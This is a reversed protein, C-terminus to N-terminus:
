NKAQQSCTGRIFVANNRSSARITFDAPLGPNPIVFTARVSGTTGALFPPITLMANSTTLVTLGQLGVGSDVTDVTVSGLGPTIAQFGSLSGPFVETISLTPTCVGPAPPPTPSPTPGPTPSPSPTPTPNPVPFSCKARILVANSRASARLTFDVPQGPNPLAFVINVPDFTGFPFAPISVVANMSSVVSVNQLGIGSNAPDITVRNETGVISSFAAASGPFVETVTITPTCIAPDIVTHSTTGSSGLFNPDGLYTVTLLRQGAVTSTIVCSGALASASCFGGAGDAVNVSGSLNGGGPAVVVVNWTVAYSQGILTPDPTDSTITLLTSAKIVQHIETDSSVSFNGDGSYAASITRSGASALVITCSGTPAPGTCSEPGGSVSVAVLGSPTGAGPANPNVSYSVVVEQGVVSPEPADSNITLSTSAKTVEQPDDILTGVSNNFGSSNAVFSATISHSGVPLQSTTLSAVGSALSIPPGFAAGNALFQVSGTPTGGAPAAAVVTATFTVGQGFVSPDSSSTVSTATDAPLIADTDTASNNNPNPDEISSSVVSTNELEGPVAVPSVTANVTFTVSAAPPLSVSANIDGNGSEPCVGGNNSVCTWFAASIATPFTDSVTATAVPSPGSNSATITYILAGGPGVTTVGDTKTISLNAIPRVINTDTSSNNEPVSDTTGQPPFVNAINAVTGSTATVNASVIFTVMGGDPLTPIVIGDGQMLSVTTNEPAPCVAGGQASCTVGTVSLGAVVPDTFVSLDAPSPGGNAIAISYFTTGGANVTENGDTKLVSLNANAGVVSITADPNVPPPELNGVNDRAVSYFRYSRGEVGTFDSTTDATSKFLTYPGNNESVWVDFNALGSGGEPDTGSWNVTFTTAESTPPLTAVQSSPADTDITNLTTNTVIPEETDFVITANNTIETGTVVNAKPKVTFIVYGQGLNGEGNPPLLGLNPSLPQEGTEPDIATMTWTVRSTAINVGASIDVLLNGLDEGLQARTQYFARNPPVEYRYDGFGIEKLRVTRPDLSLPLDDTIRIRQAYGTATPMNEFNIRYSYSNKSSVFNEAGFGAPGVKDNPDSPFRIPPAKFDKYTPPPPPPPLCDQGFQYIDYLQKARQVGELIGVVIGAAKGPTFDLACEPGYELTAKVAGIAMSGISVWLAGEDVNRDVAQAVIEGVLSLQPVFLEGALKACNSFPLAEMAVDVAIGLAANICSATVANPVSLGRSASIDTAMMPPLVEARVLLRVVEAPARVDLDIRVSEGRRLAPILLPISRGQDTQISIPVQEVSMGSPLDSEPIVTLEFDRSLRFDSGNPINIFLPTLLADNAGQNTVTISFQSFTNPRVAEPASVRVVVDHGGGEMVRFGNELRVAEFGPNTLVVDYLGDEQGRLDFIAVLRAGDSRTQLPFIEAIGERSLKATTTVGFRAGDITLTAFGRNGAQEPTVRRIGFPLLESKIQVSQSDGPPSAPVFDGRVLAYYTGSVTNPVVNEQDPENPRSFLFDYQNRSAIQGFRTFLENSSGFEGDLTLLLTENTPTNVKYFREQGTRLTAALPIGLQLETVDVNTASSAVLRNNSENIERVQNRSDTRVIVYYAGINMAPLTPSISGEYTAGPALDSQRVYQGVFVDNIDWTADPSLYVSDTWLGFAANAGTNRGVWDITVPDGPVATPLPTISEVVLDAPATLSLSVIQSPSINNSENSEPVSNDRDTRVFVNYEGTLGQPVLFEGAFQYSEGAGLAGSHAVTGLVPDRSDLIQDRSLFLTEKWRSAVTQYSGANTVTFSVNLNRGSFGTPPVAVQSVQLDAEPGAVVIPILDLNNGEFIGEDVNLGSDSIVILYYAGPATNPLSVAAEANYTSGVTLPGNRLVRGLERDGDSYVQDTSLYVADLWAVSAVPSNGSNIGTWSVNFTEFPRVSSGEVNMSTIRLDPRNSLEPNPAISIGGSNASQNNEEGECEDLSNSLDTRVHVYWNGTLTMPLAVNVSRSYSGNSPLPSGQFSGSHIASILDPTLSPSLFVRDVWAGSASGPGANLVSWSVGINEGGTANSPHTVGMVQLDPPVNTLQIPKPSSENNAEGDVKPDFEYINNGADAVAILYYEGSICRPLRVTGTVSYEGGAELVASHTETFLINDQEPDLNVDSSLYLADFGSPPADFPGQNRVTFSVTIESGASAVTPATLPQLIILDPPTATITVPSGPEEGDFGSNNNESNFEYVKNASDTVVIVYWDGSINTPLTVSYNNVSYGDGPALIGNRERSAILRDNGGLTTDSSLYVTDTWKAQQPPVIGLGNNEVRWSILIPQGAFGEDQAQVSTVRLDPLPPIQISIAKARTNNQENEESVGTSSDAKAILFRNGFVGRPLTVNAVAVYSEGSDLYTINRVSRMPTDAADLTSDTSLYISDLWEGSNTAGPGSNTVTWQVQIEQDFFATDPALLSPVALEPRLTRRVRIPRFASRNNANGDQGEVLDDGDDAMVYLFYDGTQSIASVPISIDQIRQISQQSGLSQPFDFCGLQVDTGINQDVSLYVCDDWPPNAAVPGANELTWAVQIDEGTEVEVPANTTPIRLDPALLDIHAAQFRVNNNEAESSGEGIANTADTRVYLFYNGSAPIASPNLLLNKLQRDTSEEPELDGSFNLSGLLIDNGVQDDLSFFVRDVWSSGASGNGINDVTWSVDFPVATSLDASPTVSGVILDPFTVPAVPQWDPGNEDFPDASFNMPSTGDANMQYIEFNGNRNSAFAIKGGGPSWTPNEDQAGDNTLRTQSTGDADMVYIESNGDRTSTFVIKTGNPSWVPRTDVAANNTLRVPNAGTDTMVYIESNGNRTSAFAVKTGDPSWDPVTDVAANNTLQVVGTGDANMAFIEYNGTRISTFAIKSGDPSWTPRGDIAPDNTLRAQQSGNANMSYIEWNGDRGSTFAIKTGDPSWAAHFDEAVNDTLRTQSGSGDANLAYIEWNGDRFSEFAVKRTDPIDEIQEVVVDSMSLVYNGASAAGSSYFSDIFLHLPVNLPLSNMQASSITEPQGGFTSDAGVVCNSVSSGAGVPCRAGTAGNLIYISSDYTSTTTTVRVQPNPGRSVLKFSYVHDPGGVQSYFGNCALPIDSVTNSAGVTSGSDVFPAAATYVGAPVVTGPCTDTGALLDLLNLTRPQRPLRFDSQRRLLAPTSCSSFTAGAPMNRRIQPNESIVDARFESAEASSIGLFTGVAALTAFQWQPFHELSGSGSHSVDGKRFPIPSVPRHHPKVHARRM